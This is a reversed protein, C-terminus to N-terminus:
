DIKGCFYTTVTEISVRVQQGCHPCVDDYQDEDADPGEFHCLCNPCRPGVVSETQYSM